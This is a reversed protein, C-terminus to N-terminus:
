TKKAQNGQQVQCIVHQGIYEEQILGLKTEMGV